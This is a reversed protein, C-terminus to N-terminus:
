EPRWGVVPKIGSKISKVLESDTMETVSKRSKNQNQSKKISKTQINTKQITASINTTTPTGMLPAADPCTTRGLVFRGHVDRSPMNVVGNLRHYKINNERLYKTATNRSIQYIKCFSSVSNSNFDYNKLLNILEDRTLPM